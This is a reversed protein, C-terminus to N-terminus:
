FETFISLSLMTSAMRRKCISGKYKPRTQFWLSHILEFFEELHFIPARKVAFNQTLSLQGCYDRIINLLDLQFNIDTNNMARLMQQARQFLRRPKLLFNKSNNHYWNILHEAM